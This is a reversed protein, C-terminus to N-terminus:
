EKKEREILQMLGERNLFGVGEGKEKCHCCHIPTNSGGAYLISTDMWVHGCSLCECVGTLGMAAGISDGTDNLVTAMQMLLNDAKM